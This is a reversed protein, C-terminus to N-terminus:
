SAYLMCSQRLCPCVEFNQRYGREYVASMLPNQFLNQGVREKNSIQWAPRDIESKITLDIYKGRYVPYKTVQDEQNLYYVSEMLGFYRHVKRLPSLSEPCVFIDASGAGPGDILNLIGQKPSLVASSSGLSLARVNGYIVFAAAISLNLRCM